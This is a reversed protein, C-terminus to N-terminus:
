ILYTYGWDDDMQLHSKGNYVLWQPTGGNESSSVVKKTCPADPSARSGPLGASAPLTSASDKFRCFLETLKKNNILDKYLIVHYKNCLNYKDYQIRKQISHNTIQHPKYRKDHFSLNTSLSMHCYNPQPTPGQAM